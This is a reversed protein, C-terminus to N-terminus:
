AWAYSLIVKIIPVETIRYTITHLYTPKSRRAEPQTLKILSARLLLEYKEGGNNESIELNAFFYARGIADRCCHLPAHHVKFRM